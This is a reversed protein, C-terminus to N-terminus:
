LFYFPFSIFMSAIGNASELCPGSEVESVPVVSPLTIAKYYKTVERHNQKYCGLNYTLAYWHLVLPYIYVCIYKLVLYNSCKIEM